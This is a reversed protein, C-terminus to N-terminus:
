CNTKFSQQLYAAAAASNYPTAILPRFPTSPAFELKSGAPCPSNNSCAFLNGFASYTGPVSAVSNNNPPSRTTTFPHPSTMNSKLRQGTLPDHSQAMQLPAKGGCTVSKPNSKKSSEVNNFSSSRKEKTAVSSSSSSRQQKQAVIMTKVHDTLIAAETAEIIAAKHEIDM